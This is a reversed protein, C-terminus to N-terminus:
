SELCKSIISKEEKCIDEFDIYGAKVLLGGYKSFVISLGRLLEDLKKLPKSEMNINLRILTTCTFPLIIRLPRCYMTYVVVKYRDDGKHFISKKLDVEKGEVKLKTIRKFEVGACKNFICM